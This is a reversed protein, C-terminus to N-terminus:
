RFRKDYAEKLQELAQELTSRHCGINLRVFSSGEDGYVYGHNLYLKAEHLFFNLLENNSLNLKRCDLWMLYTAEPKIVKILPLNEEIYKFVYNKNEELYVLVEELWAEGTQYAVECALMGFISPHTGGLKKLFKRLKERLEKNEIIINSTHLGALNFTKSPATCTICINSYEKKLSALPIHKYGKYVLDHHIEDVALLVNHKLCIEAINTLEEKTWVRGVPNHPSCLIFLKVQHKIIKEELELFDIEYHNDKLLLPSLVLNRNNNKVVNFFPNYVPQQVLVSDDESTFTQVIYYLASVVGPTIIIWEKKIEWNHRKKMWNIIADYYSDPIVTYGYVGHQARSVLAEIVKPPSPFDMDAVWLPLVDEPVSDWKVSNTNKRNVFEM